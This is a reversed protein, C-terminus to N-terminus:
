RVMLEARLTELAADQSQRAARAAELEGHLADVQAASDSTERLDAELAARQGELRAVQVYIINRKLEPCVMVLLVGSNDSLCPQRMSPLPAQLMQGLM